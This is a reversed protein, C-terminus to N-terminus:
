AHYGGKIPTVAPTNWQVGCYLLLRLRYHSFNRYGTGSERSRRSKPTAAETSGNSVGGTDHM